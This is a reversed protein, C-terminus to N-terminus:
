PCRDVQNCGYSVRGDQFRALQFRMGSNELKVCKMIGCIEFLNKARM